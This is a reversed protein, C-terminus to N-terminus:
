CWHMFLKSPLFLLHFFNNYLEYGAGMNLMNGCDFFERIHIHQNLIGDIFIQITTSNVFGQGFPIVRTKSLFQPSIIEVVIGYIDGFSGPIANIKFRDGKRFIYLGGQKFDFGVKLGSGMRGSKRQYTALKVVVGAM